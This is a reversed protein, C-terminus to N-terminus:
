CDRCWICRHNKYYCSKYLYVQICLQQIGSVEGLTKFKAPNFQQIKLFLNCLKLQFNLLACIIFVIVYRCCHMKVKKKRNFTIIFFIALDKLTYRFTRRRCSEIKILFVTKKKHLLILNTFNFHSYAFVLQVKNTKKNWLHVRIRLQSKLDHSYKKTNQKQNKIQRRICFPRSIFHNFLM